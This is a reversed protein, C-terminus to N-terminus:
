LKSKHNELTHMLLSYGNTAGSFIFTGAGATLAAVKVNISADSIKSSQWGAFPSNHLGHLVKLSYQAVYLSRFIEEIRRTM